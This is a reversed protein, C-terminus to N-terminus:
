KHKEPAEIFPDDSRAPAEAWPIPCKELQLRQLHASSGPGGLLFGATPIPSKRFPVSGGLAGPRQVGLRGGRHRWM